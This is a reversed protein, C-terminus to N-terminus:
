GLHKLAERRSLGSLGPHHEVFLRVWGPNTKAYDRLAWGIGKRLFFDPDEVNAEITHTLLETDTAAKAGVQCIVSTRRRWRDADRAWERMKATLVAPEARLIPGVRRIAIEDVFDWWAGTVVLEEYLPLLSSDQWGAYARHGTLDLAVYREERFEAERWLTLVAKTFLERDPLPYEAALRRNLAARGPKPVGRFPMESKMYARMEPAKVPDAVEALGSRAAIVFEDAIDM